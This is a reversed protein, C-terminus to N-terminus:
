KPKPVEEEEGAEDKGKSPESAAKVKDKNVPDTSKTGDPMTFFGCKEREAVQTQYLKKAKREM